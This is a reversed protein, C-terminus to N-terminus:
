SQVDADTQLRACVGVQAGEDGSPTLYPSGKYNTVMFAPLNGLKEGVTRKEFPKWVSARASLMAAPMSVTDGMRHQLSASLGSLATAGLTFTALSASGIALSRRLGAWRRQRGEARGEGEEARPELESADSEQNDEGSTGAAAMSMRSTRPRGLQHQQMRRNDTASCTNKTATHQRRLSTTVTTSRLPVAQPVFAEAVGNNAVAAALAAAIFVGQRMTSSELLTITLVNGM